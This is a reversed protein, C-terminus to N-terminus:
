AVQRQRGCFNRQFAENEKLSGTSRFGAAYSCQYTMKKRLLIKDSGAQPKMKMRFSWKSERTRGFRTTSPSFHSLFANWDNIYFM